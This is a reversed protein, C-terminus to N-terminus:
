VRVCIRRECTHTQTHTGKHTQTYTHTPANVAKYVSRRLYYNTELTRVM